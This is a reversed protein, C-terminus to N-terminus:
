FPEQIVIAVCFSDLYASSFSRVKVTVKKKLVIEVAPILKRPAGWYKKLNGFSWLISLFQGPAGIVPWENAWLVSQFITQLYVATNYTVVRVSLLTRSGIVDQLPVSPQLQIGSCVM